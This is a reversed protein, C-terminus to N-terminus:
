MKRRKRVNKQREQRSAAYDKETTDLPAVKRAAIREVAVFAVHM